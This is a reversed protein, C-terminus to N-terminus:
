LTEAGYLLLGDDLLLYAAVRASYNFRYDHVLGFSIMTTGHMTFMRNFVEPSVFNNLPRILQIRMVTAEVGAIVLFLLGYFIYLLGIRKHDVTIVWQHLEGMLPRRVAETESLAISQTAM